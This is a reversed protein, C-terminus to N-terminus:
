VTKRMELQRVMSDILRVEDNVLWKMNMGLNM